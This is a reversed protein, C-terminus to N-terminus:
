HGPGANPTAGPRAEPIAEMLSELAAEPTEEVGFARPVDVLELAAAVMAGSPVVLRMAQGRTVLHRRLEFLMHLAASDLYEVRTLDLVLGLSDNSIQNSIAAGLAEANSMDVEGMVVAVLIRNEVKTDLNALSM